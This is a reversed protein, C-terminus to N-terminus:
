LEAAESCFEADYLLLELAFFPRSLDDDDPARWDSAVASAAVDLLPLEETGAPLFTRLM